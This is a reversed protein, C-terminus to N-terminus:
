FFRITLNGEATLASVFTDTTGRDPPGMALGRYLVRVGLHVTDGVLADFGGGAQFGTGVSQTGFYTSDLLYLGLGAQVFPEVARSSGRGLYIRADGTFGNLALYDIDDGFVTRVREPNHLTATWAAEFALTRNVRVGTMLTLGGGHDLIEDGGSQDLIRTAVVGAGMYLGRPVVVAVVRARTRRHYTVQAEATSSVMASAAALGLLWARRARTLTNM